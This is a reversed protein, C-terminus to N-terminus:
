RKLFTLTRVWALQSAEENYADARDSEFFWHGTGPYTYFTAPRGAAKLQGELWERNEPPEYPDNEAYHCLYEAQSQSFDAGGTGYFTVVKRISDVARASLDLAYAAGLSFGVVAVDSTDSGSKEKIFLTAEVAEAKAQDATQDLAGALKEAESIQDTVKGHYLDPAFVAFGESALRDCFARITANLGWWPHLVVVPSGTGSSPLALYGDPQTQSM